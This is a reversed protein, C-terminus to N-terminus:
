ANAGATQPASDSRSADLGRGTLSLYVDALTAGAHEFDAGRDLLERAVTELQAADGAGSARGGALTVRLGASRLVDAFAEGCRILREGIGLRLADPADDAVIRGESLMVVRGARDAEDMLHTSMVITIERDKRIADLTDLFGVRADHDLGATPEDLLLLEPDSLLARALDVRRVMGGSLTRVRDDLRDTLTLRQAEREIRDAPAAHLACQNALNERVTLLPDLGPRQFVVGLGARADRVRSAGLIEVAGQDPAELTAFIRMLTSKGSGNPGLLAVWEGRQVRMSVEHLAVRAPVGRRARYTRRVADLIIAPAGM